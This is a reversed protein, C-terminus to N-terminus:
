RLGTQYYNPDTDAQNRGGEHHCATTIASDYPFLCFPLQGPLSRKRKVTTTTTKPIRPLCLYPKLFVHKWTKKKRRYNELRGGEEKGPEEEKRGAQGAPWVGKGSFPLMWWFLVIDPQIKRRRRGEVLHPLDPPEYAPLPCMGKWAPFAQRGGDEWSHICWDKQSKRGGRYNISVMGEMKKKPEHRTIARGGAPEEAKRRGELLLPPPQPYHTTDSHIPAFPRRGAWTVPYSSSRGEEWHRGSGEAQSLQAPLQVATNRPHSPVGPCRPPTTIGLLEEKRGPVPPLGPFRQRCTAPPPLLGLGPRCIACHPLPLYGGNEQLVPLGHLDIDPPLGELLLYSHTHLPHPAAFHRFACGSALAVRRLRWCATLCAPLRAPPPCPDAEM